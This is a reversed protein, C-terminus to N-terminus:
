RAVIWPKLKEFRKSGIGEVELLEAPEQFRGRAKRHMVIRTALTPGVGPLMQLALADARNIDVLTTPQAKAIRLPSISLRAHPARPIDFLRPPHSAPVPALGFPRLLFPGWVIAALALGLLSAVIAERKSYVERM